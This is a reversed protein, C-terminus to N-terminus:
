SSTPTRACPAASAYKPAEKDADPELFRKRQEHQARAARQLYIARMWQLVRKTEALTPRETPATM